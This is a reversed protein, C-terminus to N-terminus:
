MSLPSGTTRRPSEPVPLLWRSIPIPRAAQSAPREHAVRGTRTQDVFQDLCGVFTPEGCRRESRVDRGTTARRAPSRGARCVRHPATRGSESRARPSTRSRTAEFRGKLSHPWTMVSGRSTAAMTSRMVNRAWMMSVPVSLKRSRVDRRSLPQDASRKFCANAAAVDFAAPDFSRAWGSWSLQRARRPAPDAIAELFEEYGGIGGVDEPPCAEEGDICVAHKLGYPEM